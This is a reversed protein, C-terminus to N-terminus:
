ALDGGHAVAKGTAPDFIHLDRAAVDLAIAAGPKEAVREHAVSVVTRGAVEAAIHTQDGLWQCSMVKGKLAGGGARLAHPRVGLAVVLMLPLCSGGGSGFNPPTIFFPARCDFGQHAGRTTGGLPAGLTSSIMVSSAPKPTGLVKPPTMGVGVISRIALM